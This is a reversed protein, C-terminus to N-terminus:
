VFITKINEKQTLTISIVKKSSVNYIRPLNREIVTKTIKVKM